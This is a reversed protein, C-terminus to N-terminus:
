ATSSCILSAVTYYQLHALGTETDMLWKVM